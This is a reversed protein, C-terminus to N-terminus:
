TPWPLVSISSALAIEKRPTRIFNLKTFKSSKQSFIWSKPNWHQLVLSCMEMSSSIYSQYRCLWPSKKERPVSLILNWVKKFFIWSKPNEHHLVRSSKKWQHILIYSQNNIFSPHNRKEPYPCVFVTKSGWISVHRCVFMITWKYNNIINVIPTISRFNVCYVTNGHHNRVNHILSFTILRWHRWLSSIRRWSKLLPSLFIFNPTTSSSTMALLRDGRKKHNDEGIMFYSTKIKGVACFHIKVYLFM